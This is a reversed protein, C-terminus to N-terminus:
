KIKRKQFDYIANETYANIYDEDIVKSISEVLNKKATDYYCNIYQIIKEEKGINNSFIKRFSIDNVDLNLEVEAENMPIVLPYDLAKMCIKRFSSNDFNTLQEFDGIQFYIGTYFEECLNDGLYRFLTCSYADFLDEDYFDKHYTDLINGKKRFTLADIGFLNCGFLQGKELKIDNMM